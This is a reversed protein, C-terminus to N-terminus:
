EGMRRYARLDETRKRVVAEEASARLAPWMTGGKVQMADFESWTMCFQEWAAQTEDFAPLDDGSLRSRLQALADHLDQRAAALSEGAAVNMATQTLPANPHLTESLLEDAARLFAVCSEFCQAVQPYEIEHATALEHCIIHRMEFAKAVGSFVKDPDRLIPEIPQGRVEHKWRDTVTRIKTLFSTGLLGSMSSEIHELRSLPVIHGVLEGVTVAKGHIARLVAFDLKMSSAPRESNSLYPEGFDVLEKIALRFYGEICAVLAVPFYRTLEEEAEDHNKFAQELAFLRMPLEAMASGFRRRKRVEAIEEIIDRARSM